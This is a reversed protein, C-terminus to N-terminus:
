MVSRVSVHQVCMDRKKVTSVLFTLSDIYVELKLNSKTMERSRVNSMHKYEHRTGKRKTGHDKKCRRFIYAKHFLRKGEMGCCLLPWVCVYVKHFYYMSM